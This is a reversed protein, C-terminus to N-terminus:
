FNPAVAARTVTRGNTADVDILSEWLWGDPSRMSNPLPGHCETLEPV